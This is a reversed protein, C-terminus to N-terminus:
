KCICEKGDIIEYEPGCIAECYASGITGAGEGAGKSVGAVPEAASTFGTRFLTVIAVLTVVLLLIVIITTFTLALGKM